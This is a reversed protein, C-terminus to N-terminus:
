TSRSPFDGKILYINGEGEFALKSGSPSWHPGTRPDAAGQSSTARQGTRDSRMLWITGGHNWAIERGDPSWAPLWDCGCRTVWEFTALRRACVAIASLLSPQYPLRLARRGVLSWVGANPHGWSGDFGYFALRGGDGTIRVPYGYLEGVDGAERSVEFTKLPRARRDGLTETLVLANYHSLGAGPCAVLLRKGGLVPGEMASSEPCLPHALTTVRHTLRDFVQIREYGDGLRAM